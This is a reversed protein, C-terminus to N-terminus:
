EMSFIDSSHFVIGHEFPSFFHKLQFNTTPQQKIEYRIKYVLSRIKKSVNTCSPKNRPHCQQLLLWVWYLVLLLSCRWKSLIQKINKSKKWLLFSASDGINSFVERFSQLTLETLVSLQNVVSGFWSPTNLAFIRAVWFACLVMSFLRFIRNAGSWNWDLRILFAFNYLRECKTSIKKREKKREEENRGTKKRTKFFINSKKPWECNNACWFNRIIIQGPFKLLFSFPWISIFIIIHRSLSDVRIFFYTEISFSFLCCVCVCTLVSVSLRVSIRFRFSRKSRLM